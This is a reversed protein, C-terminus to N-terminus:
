KELIKRKRNREKEELKTTKKCSFHEHKRHKEGSPSM